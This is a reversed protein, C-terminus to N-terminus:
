GGAAASSLMTIPGIMPDSSHHNLFESDKLSQLLPWPDAEVKERAIYVRKNFATKTLSDAHLDVTVKSKCLTQSLRSDSRATLLCFIFEVSGIGICTMTQNL